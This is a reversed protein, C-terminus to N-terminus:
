TNYHSIKAHVEPVSCIRGMDAMKDGDSQEQKPFSM